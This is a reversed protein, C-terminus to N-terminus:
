NLARENKNNRPERENEALLTLVIQVHNPKMAGWAPCNCTLKWRLITYCSKISIQCNRYCSTGMGLPGGYGGCNWDSPSTGDTM